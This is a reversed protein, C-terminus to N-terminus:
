ANEMVMRVHELHHRCHWAYHMIVQDLRQPAPWDPHVITRSWDDVSQLVRVWRMHVGWIIDLSYQIPMNNDPLEAWAAEDYPKITPNDETLALKTRIFANMHSDALHHILQRLQWGGPRYSTTLQHQSANRVLAELHEPLAEITEIAEQIQTPSVKEPMTFPGIPYRRPDTTATSM